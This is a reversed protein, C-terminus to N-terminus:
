GVKKKRQNYGPFSPSSLKATMAKKQKNKRQTCSLSSPSLLLATTAKKKTKEKPTARHLLRRCNSNDGEKEKKQKPHLGVFFAVDVM